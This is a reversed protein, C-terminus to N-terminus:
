IRNSFQLLSEIEIFIHRKLTLSLHFLIVKFFIIKLRNPFIIKSLNEFWHNSASGHANLFKGHANPFGLQALFVLFTLNWKATLANSFAILIKSYFTISLRSVFQYIAVDINTVSRTSNSDGVDRWWCWQLRYVNGSQHIWRETKNFSSFHNGLYCM